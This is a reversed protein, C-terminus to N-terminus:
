SPVQRVGPTTGTAFPSALKTPEGLLVPLMTPEEVRYHPAPSRELNRRLPISSVSSEISSASSERSAMSPRSSEEKTVPCSWSMSTKRFADFPAPTIGGQRTM